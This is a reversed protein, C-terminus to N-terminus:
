GGAAAKWKINTEATGGAFLYNGLTVDGKGSEEIGSFNLTGIILMTGSNTFDSGTTTTVELENNIVVNAKADINVKGGAVLKGNLTFTKNTEGATFTM